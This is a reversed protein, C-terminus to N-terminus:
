ASPAPNTIGPESPMERIEKELEEIRKQMEAIAQKAPPTIIDDFTGPPRYTIKRHKEISAKLSDIQKQNGWIKQERTQPKATSSESARQNAVLVWRELLMKWDQVSGRVIWKSAAYYFYFQKVKDQPFDPFKEKAYTMVEEVDNPTKCKPEEAKESLVFKIQPYLSRFTELVGHKRLARLMPAHFSGSKDKGTSEVFPGFGYQFPIYSPFWWYNGVRHVKKFDSDTTELGILEEAPQTNMERFVRAWDIPIEPRIAFEASAFNCQWFGAQDCRDWAYIAVLKANGSLGQFWPDEWKEPCTFRKSM